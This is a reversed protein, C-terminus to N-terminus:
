AGREWLATALWGIVSTCLALGGYVVGNRLKDIRGHNRRATERMEKRDLRMDERIEDLRRLLEAYRTKCEDGHSDRWAELGAIREGETM